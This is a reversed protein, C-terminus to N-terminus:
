HVINDMLESAGPTKGETMKGEIWYGPPRDYLIEKASAHGSSEVALADAIARPTTAKRLKDLAEDFAKERASANQILSLIYSHTSPLDQTQLSLLHPVTEDVQVHRLGVLRALDGNVVCHLPEKGLHSFVLSRRGFVNEHKSVALM